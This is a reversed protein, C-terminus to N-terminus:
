ERRRSLRLVLPRHVVGAGTEMGELSASAVAEFKPLALAWDDFRTDREM